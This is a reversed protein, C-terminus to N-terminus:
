LKRDRQSKALEALNSKDLFERLMRKRVGAWREHLVCPDTDSCRDSWFVCRNFIDPGEVALLIEGFSIHRAPRALAYGRVRGRSSVVIGARTLKQFIKALFSQPVKRSKAIDQLLMVSGMPENALALLGEIAYASERALKM